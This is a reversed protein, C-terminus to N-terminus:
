IRHTNGFKWMQYNFIAYILLSPFVFCVFLQVSNQKQKTVAKHSQCWAPSMFSTLPLRNCQGKQLPSCPVYCNAWCPSFSFPSRSVNNGLVCTGQEERASQKRHEGTYVLPSKIRQQKLRSVSKGERLNLPALFPQSSASCPISVM